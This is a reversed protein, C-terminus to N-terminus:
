APRHGERGQRLVPGTASTRACGRASWCATSRTLASIGATSCRTSTRGSCCGTTSGTSAARPSRGSIPRRCSRRSTREASRAAATIPTWSWRRSPGSVWGTRRSGRTASCRDRGTGPSASLGGGCSARSILQMLDAFYAVDAPDALDYGKGQVINRAFRPPPEATAVTRSSGYMASSCAASSRITAPASRRGGTTPSAPACKRSAASATPRASCSGPRPSGCRRLTASFAEASWETTRSTPRSSSRSARAVRRPIRPRGSPQWFNVEVLHPRDALFRYWQDDTVGVYAQM